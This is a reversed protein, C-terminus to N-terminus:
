RASSSHYSKVPQEQFIMNESKLRGVKQHQNTIGSPTSFNSSSKPSTIDTPFSISSKM